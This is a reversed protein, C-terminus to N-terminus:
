QLIQTASKVSYGWGYAAGFFGMRFLTLITKLEKKEISAFTLSPSKFDIMESEPINIEFDKRDDTSLQPFYLEEGGPYLM